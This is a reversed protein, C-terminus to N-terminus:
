FVFRVPARDSLLLYIKSIGTRNVRNAMPESRRVGLEAMVTYVCASPLPKM